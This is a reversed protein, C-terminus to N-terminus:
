KILVLCAQNFASFYKFGFCLAKTKADMGASVTVAACLGEARSPQQGGSQASQDGSQAAGPMAAAPGVTPPSVLLIYEYLENLVVYCLMVYCLMLYPSFLGNLGAFSM